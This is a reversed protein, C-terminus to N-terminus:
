EKRREQRDERQGAPHWVRGLTGRLNCTPADPEDCILAAEKTGGKCPLHSARESLLIEYTM